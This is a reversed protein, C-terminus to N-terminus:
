HFLTVLARALRGDDHSGTWTVAGVSRAERCYRVVEDAPPLDTISLAGHARLRYAVDEADRVAVCGDDGYRAAVAIRWRLGTVMMIGHAEGPPIAVEVNARALAEAVDREYALALVPRAREPNTVTRLRTQEDRPLRALLAAIREDSLRDAVAALRETPVDPVLVAAQEVTTTTMLGLLHEPTLAAIVTGRDRPPMAPVLRALDGPRLAAVITPLRETPMALLLSAAAKPSSGRLMATLQTVPMMGGPLM